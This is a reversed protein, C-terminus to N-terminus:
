LYRIEMWFSKKEDLITTKKRAPSSHHAGDAIQLALTGGDVGSRNNRPLKRIRHPKVALVHKQRLRERERIHTRERTRAFEESGTITAYPPLNHKREKTKMHVVAYINQFGFSNSLTKIDNHRFDANSRETKNIKKPAWL